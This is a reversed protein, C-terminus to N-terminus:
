LSRLALKMLRQRTFSKRDTRVLRVWRNYRGFVLRRVASFEAETPIYDGRLFAKKLTSM